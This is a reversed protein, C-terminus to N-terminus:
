TASTTGEEKEVEDAWLPLHDKAYARSVRTTFMSKLLGWNRPVLTLAAVHLVLMVIIFLPTADHLLSSWQRLWGPLGYIYELSKLFGTVVVIGVLIAWGSYSVVKETALYKGEYDPAINHKRLFPQVARRVPQPMQIGFAGKMGRYVGTYSVSEAVANKVDAKSRPLLGTGGGALHYTVHHAVAAVVFGAGIFHITYVTKLSWPNGIGNWDLMFLATILCVIFGIANLWHTAVETWGHRQLSEATHHEKAGFIRRQILALAIFAGALFPVVRAFIVNLQYLESGGINGGYWDRDGQDRSVSPAVAILGIVALLFVVPPLWRVVLGGLGTSSQAPERDHSIEAVSM